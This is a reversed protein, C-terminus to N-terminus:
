INILSKLNENSESIKKVLANEQSTIANRLGIFERQNAEATVKNDQKMELLLTKLDSEQPPAPPQQFVPPVWSQTPSYPPKIPLQAPHTGWQFSQISQSSSPKPTSPLPQSSSIGLPQPIKSSNQGNSAEEFLKADEKVRTNNKAKEKPPM